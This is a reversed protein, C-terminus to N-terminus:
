RRCGGDRDTTYLYRIEWPYIQSPGTPGGSRPISRSTTASGLPRNTGLEFGAALFEVTSGQYGRVDVTAELGYNLRDVLLNGRGDRVRVWSGDCANYIVLQRACGSVAVALLLALFLKRM